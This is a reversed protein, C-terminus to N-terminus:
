RKKAEAEIAESYSTNRVLEALRAGFMQVLDARKRSEADKLARRTAMFARESNVFYEAADLTAQLASATISRSSSVFEFEHAESNEVVLRVEGVADSGAIGRTRNRDLMGQVTFGVFRLTKLSAYEASLQEVLGRFFADVLGVGRGEVTRHEKPGEKKGVPVVVARIRSEGTTVNEEFVHSEIRLEHYDAGLIERMLRISATQNEFVSAEIRRQFQAGNEYGHNSCSHGHIAAEDDDFAGALVVEFVHADLDRDALEGGDGPHCARPFGRQREIDEVRFPM